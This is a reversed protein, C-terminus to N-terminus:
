HVSFSSTNHRQSRCCPNRSTRVVSLHKPMPMCMCKYVAVVSSPKARCFVVRIHPLEVYEYCCLCLCGAAAATACQRVKDCSSELNVLRGTDRILASLRFYYMVQLRTLGTLATLRQLGVDSLDPSHEWVLSELHPLDQLKTIAAAAPDGFALGGVSVHSISHPLQQLVDLSTGPEVDRVLSVRELQPCATIIRGIDGANLCWGDERINIGEQLDHDCNLWLVRLQPMCRGLPFMHQVAGRPLPQCHTSTLKLSTLVASATVAAFLQPDADEVDWEWQPLALHLAQMQTLKALSGLLEHVHAAERDAAAPLMPKLICGELSLKQLRTLNGLVAPAFSCGDLDLEQLQLTDQLSALCEPYPTDGSQAGHERRLALKTLAHPLAPTGELPNSGRSTACFNVRLDRLSGMATLSRVAQQDVGPYGKLDLTHLGPLQQLMAGVGTLVCLAPCDARGATAVTWCVASMAPKMVENKAHM